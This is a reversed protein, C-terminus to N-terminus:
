GPDGDAVTTVTGRSAKPDTNRLMVKIFPYSEDFPVSYHITFVWLSYPPKSQHRATYIIEVTRAVLEENLKKILLDTDADQNKEEKIVAIDIAEETETHIRCKNSDVNIVPSPFDKELKPLYASACIKYKHRLSARPDGTRVAHTMVDHCPAEHLGEIIKQAKLEIIEIEESM